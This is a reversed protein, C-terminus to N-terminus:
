ESACLASIHSRQFRPSDWLAIPRSNSRPDDEIKVTNAGVPPIRGTGLFLDPMDSVGASRSSIDLPMAQLRDIRQIAARRFREGEVMLLSIWRL